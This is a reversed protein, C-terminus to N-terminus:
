LSSVGLTEGLLEVMQKCISSNMKEVLVAYIGEAAIPYKHTGSQM